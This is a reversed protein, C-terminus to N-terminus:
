INCFGKVPTETDAVASSGAVMKSTLLCGVLQGTKNVFQTTTLELGTATMQFESIAGTKRLFNTSM